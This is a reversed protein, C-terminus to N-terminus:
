YCGVESTSSTCTSIYAYRGCSPVYQYSGSGNEYICSYKQIQNSFAHGGGTSCSDPVCSDPHSSPSSQTCSRAIETTWGYHTWDIGSASSTPCSSSSFKCMFEGSGNDVIVGGDYVCDNVTHISNVLYEVVAVTTTGMQNWGSSNCFEVSQSTPNYRLAGEISSGCEVTTSGMKMYGSFSSNGFVALSDVGIGGSKIQDVTGVNIPADVNDGPPAVTPGVWAAYAYTVGLTVVLAIATVRISDKLSNKLNQTLLKM